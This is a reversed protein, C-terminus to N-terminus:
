PAAHMFNEDNVVFGANAFRQLSHQRVFAVFSCRHLAPFFAELQQPALVAVFHHQEIDPQGADIAQLRQFSDALHIVRGFHDHDRAVARDFSGHAGGLEASVVEQLFREGDVLRQDQDLVRDFGLFQPVLIDVEPFLKVGLAHDNAVANRHLSQALLNAEHRGGVPANQDVALGAGPLFQHGVRDVCLAQALVLSEDLDVTRSNRFVEDLAFQEAM